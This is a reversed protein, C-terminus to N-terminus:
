GRGRIGFLARRAPSAPSAAVAPEAAPAKEFWRLGSPNLQAVEEGTAPDFLRRSIERATAQAASHDPFQSMPSFMSCYLYEGLEDEAGGFFEFSGAPLRVLRKAGLPLSHWVVGSAPLLMLNMFWPTILVGLWGADTRGFGVAEVRLEPHLLPMGAMREAQITRFAAELTASPDDVYGATAAGAAMLGNM